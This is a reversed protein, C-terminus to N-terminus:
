RTRWGRDFRKPREARRFRRAAETILMAAQVPTPVFVGGFTTDNSGGQELSDVPVQNPTLVIFNM